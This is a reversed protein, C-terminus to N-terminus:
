YTYYCVPHAKSDPLDTKTQSRIKDITGHTLKYTNIKLSIKRIRLISIYYWTRLNENFNLYALKKLNGSTLYRTKIM